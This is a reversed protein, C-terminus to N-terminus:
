KCGKGGPYHMDKLAQYHNKAIAGGALIATGAGVTALGATGFAASAGGYTTLFQSVNMANEADDMGKDLEACSPIQKLECGGFRKPLNRTTSNYDVPGCPGGDRAIREARKKDQEAKVKAEEDYVSKPPLCGGRAGTCQGYRAKCTNCDMIGALSLSRHYSLMPGQQILSFEDTSGQEKASQAAITYTEVISEQAMLMVRELMEASVKKRLLAEKTVGQAEFQEGLTTDDPYSVGDTQLLEQYIDLQDIPKWIVYNGLDIDEEVSIKDDLAQRVKEYRQTLTMDWSADLAKKRQAEADKSDLSQAVAQFDVRSPQASFTSAKPQCATISLSLLIYLQGCGFKKVLCKM